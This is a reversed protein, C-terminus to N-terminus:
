DLRQERSWTAMGAKINGANSLSAAAKQGDGYGSHSFGCSAALAGALTDREMSIWAVPAEMFDARRRNKSKANEIELKEAWM